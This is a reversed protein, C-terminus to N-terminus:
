DGTVKRTTLTGIVLMTIWTNDAPDADAGATKTRVRVIKTGTGELNTPDEAIATHDANAHISPPSCYYIEGVTDLFKVDFVGASNRAVPTTGDLCAGDVNDPTTTGNIQFRVLMIFVSEDLAGVVDNWRNFM